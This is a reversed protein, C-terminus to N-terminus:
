GGEFAWDNNEIWNQSEPQLPDNSLQDPPLSLTKDQETVGASCDNCINPGTQGMARGIMQSKPFEYVTKSQGCQECRAFAPSGSTKPAPPWNEVPKPYTFAPPGVDDEFRASDKLIMWAKDFVNV